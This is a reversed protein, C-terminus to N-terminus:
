LGKRDRHLVTTNVGLIGVPKLRKEGTQKTTGAELGETVPWRTKVAKQNHADPGEQIAM